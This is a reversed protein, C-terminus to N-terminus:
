GYFSSVVKIITEIEAPISFYKEKGNNDIEFVEWTDALTAEIELYSGDEKEYELQLSDCATPFLEPQFKLATVIRRVRTVLQPKFAKAKNGNWGDELRLIQDLKKLNYMKEKDMVINGADSYVNEGVTYGPLSYNMGKQLTYTKTMDALDSRIVKTNTQLGNDNVTTLSSGSVLLTIVLAGGITTGYTRNIALM